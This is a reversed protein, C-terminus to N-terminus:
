KIDGCRSPKNACSVLQTHISIRRLAVSHAFLREEVLGKCRPAFPSRGDRDM